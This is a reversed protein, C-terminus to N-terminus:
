KKELFLENFNSNLNRSSIGYGYAIHGKPLKSGLFLVYMKSYKEKLLSCFSISKPDYMRLIKDKVANMKFGTNVCCDILVVNRNNLNISPLKNFVPTPTKSLSNIVEVYITDFSMPLTIGQVIDTAFTLSNNNIALIVLEEHEPYSHNIENSIRSVTKKLLNSDMFPKM